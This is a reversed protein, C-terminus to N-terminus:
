LAGGFYRNLKPLEQRDTETFADLTNSDIDLVAILRNNTDFIPLVLESQTSCSCAIHDAAANVDPVHQIEETRACAGCVGRTFPIVLCGHTGQYPGIKLTSGDMNRYFGVWNFLNFAHYLECSITAMLAIPDTEGECLADLREFLSEYNTNM